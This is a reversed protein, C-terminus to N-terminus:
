IGFRTGLGADIFVFQQAYYWPGDSFTARIEAFLEVNRRRLLVVDGEAGIALGIPLFEMGTSRFAGGFVLGAAARTGLRWRLEVMLLSGLVAVKVSEEPEDEFEDGTDPFGLDSYCDSVCSRYGDAVTWMLDLRLGGHFARQPRVLVSTGIGWNGFALERGESDAHEDRFIGLGGIASVAIGVTPERAAGVSAVGGSTRQPELLRREKEHTIAIEMVSLALLWFVNASLVAGMGPGLGQAFMLAVTAATAGAALFRLGTFGLAIGTEGLRYHGISPAAILLAVGTFGIPLVINLPLGWLFAFPAMAIGFASPFAASAAFNTPTPPQDAAAPLLKKAATPEVPEAKMAPDPGLVARTMARLQSELSAATVIRDERARTGDVDAAFTLAARLGEANDELELVLTGPRLADGGREEIVQQVAARARDLYSECFPSANASLRV